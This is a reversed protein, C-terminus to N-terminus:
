ENSAEKRALTLPKRPITYESVDKSDREETIIGAIDKDNVLQYWEKNAGKIRLGAFKGFYVRDGIMPIRGRWDEFANGGCAVLVGKVQSLRERDRTEAPIVIGAQTTEDVDDPKVIVKYEVPNLGSRNLGQLDDCYPCHTVEDGYAVRHCLRCEFKDESM